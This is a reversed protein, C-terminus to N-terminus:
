FGWQFGQVSDRAQDAERQRREAEERSRDAELRRRNAEVQAQHAFDQAATQADSRSTATDLGMASFGVNGGINRATSMAQDFGISRSPDGGTYADWAISNARRSLEEAERSREEAERSRIEAERSEFQARRYDERAQQYAASQEPSPTEMEWGNGNWQISVPEGSFRAAKQAGKMMKRLDQRDAETIPRSAVPVPEVEATRAAAVAPQSPRPAIVGKYGNQQLLDEIPAESLYITSPTATLMGQLYLQRLTEANKRIQERKARQEKAIDYGVDTRYRPQSTFDYGLDHGHKIKQRELLELSSDLAAGGQPIPTRPSKQISAKIDSILFQLDRALYESSSYAGNNGQLIASIHAANERREAMEQPSTAQANYLPMLAMYVLLVTTTKM